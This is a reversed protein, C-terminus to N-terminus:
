WTTVSFNHNGAIVVKHRHPQDAFWTLFADTETVHGRMSYDGAYVLVDGPLLRLEAYRHHTDSICVIRM